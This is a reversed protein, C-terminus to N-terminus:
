ELKDLIDQIQKKTLGKLLEGMAGRVGELRLEQIVSDVKAESRFVVLV